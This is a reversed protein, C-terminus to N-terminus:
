SVVSMSLNFFFEEPSVCFNLSSVNGLYIKHKLFNWFLFVNLILDLFNKTQDRGLFFIGGSMSFDGSPSILFVADVRSDQESSGSSRNMKDPQCGVDM